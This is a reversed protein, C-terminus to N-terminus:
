RYVIVQAQKIVKDKYKYGDSYVQKVKGSLKKDPADEAMVANHMTPNFDEGEPRIEEIDMSKLLDAFQRIIMNIGEKSKEETLFNVSLKLNDYVSAIKGAIQSLANDKSAAEIEANRKRYNDFDKSLSSYMASLEVAKKATAEVKAMKENLAVLQKEMDTNENILAEAFSLLESKSLKKIDFKANEQKIEGATKEQSEKETNKEPIDQM